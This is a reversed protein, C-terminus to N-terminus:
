LYSDTQNDYLEGIRACVCELSECELMHQNIFGKIRIETDQSGYNKQSEHIWEQFTMIQNLCDIDTAFSDIPTYMLWDRRMNRLYKIMWVVFPSGVLIVVISGSVDYLGTLLANVSIWCYIGLMSGFVQSVTSNYYPLFKFYQYLFYGSSVLSILM